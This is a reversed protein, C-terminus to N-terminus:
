PLEAQRHTSGATNRAPRVEKTRAALPRWRARRKPRGPLALHFIGFGPSLIGSRPQEPDAVRWVSKCRVGRYPKPM